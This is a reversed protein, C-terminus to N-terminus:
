HQQDLSNGQKIIVQIPNYVSSTSFSNSIPFIFDEMMNMFETGKDM